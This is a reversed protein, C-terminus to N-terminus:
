IISRFCRTMKRELPALLTPCLRYLWWILRAFATVTVIARNRAVGRLIIRACDTADMMKISPLGSFVEERKSKFYTAADFIGTRIFGPCVVIVKVGLEAAEARLSTSLGVVAHKTASYATEMPIPILGAVSATNVINGFGQKIMVQYATTTGYIVGWLNVDLIRRWNELDMDRVEGAMGVGANNFMYDLRGHTSATEEVLRQVDERRTVDLHAVSSEGGDKIIASVVQQAGEANIDAVTVVAGRRALEECLARGIGSGGGTVIVIKNKFPEM